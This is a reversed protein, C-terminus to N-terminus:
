HTSSDSWIPPPVKLDQLAAEKAKMSLRLKDFLAERSSDTIHEIREEQLLATLLEEMRQIRGENSNREADLSGKEAALDTLRKQIASVENMIEDRREQLELVFGDADAVRYTQDQL